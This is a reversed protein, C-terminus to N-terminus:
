AESLGLARWLPAEHQLKKHRFQHALPWVEPTLTRGLEDRVHQRKKM